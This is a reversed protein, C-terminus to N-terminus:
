RPKFYLFVAFVACFVVLVFTWWVWIGIDTTRENLASLQKELNESVERLRAESKELAARNRLYMDNLKDEPESAFEELHSPGPEARRGDFPADEARGSQAGIAGYANELCERLDILKPDVRYNRDIQKRIKARQELLSWAQVGRNIAGFRDGYELEFAKMAERCQSGLIDSSCTMLIGKLAQRAEPQMNSADSQFMACQAAQPVEDRASLAAPLLTGVLLTALLLWPM